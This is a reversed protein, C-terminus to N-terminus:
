SEHEHSHFSVTKYNTVISENNIVEALDNRKFSKNRWYDFKVKNPYKSLVFNAYTEYESFSSPENLDISQMIAQDWKINQKNEILDKLEKLYTKSFIMNHAIFSIPYSHKIGTLTYLTKFYPQHFEDSFDFFINKDNDVFIRDKCFLTDADAVLFFESQVIKDAALKLLQQYYWGIRYEPQKLELDNKTYGLVGIEDVFEVNEKKCFEIIKENKPAIVFINPFVHKIHKRISNLVHPAISLDKEALLLVVDIPIRSKNPAENDIRMIKELFNSFITRRLGHNPYDKFWRFYFDRPKPENNTLHLLDKFYDKRNYM